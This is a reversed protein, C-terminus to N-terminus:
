PRITFSAHLGFHDSTTGTSTVVSSWNPTAKGSADAFWYDLKMTPAGDCCTYGSGSGVVSWSDVFNPSMGATTDIQDPDANFDGAVLQPAAFNSAWSKLFAMSSYRPAAAVQLHVGFVQLPIGNVNVVLRTAGRGSHWQDAYPMITGSSDLVPLSTFVGVGEDESSTCSTGNWAGLPCHTQFAGRWTQGTRNQLENIYTNFLSLRAEEIVIVQPRPSLAALDDMVTRAHADTSDNVEINWQAVILETGDPPPPSGALITIGALNFGGADIVVKLVQRGATLTVPVSIISYNQWGGTNPVALTATTASGATAHMRGTAWASAVQFQMTYAGSATVNVTYTMWEGDAIWGIDYGGLSSSEIDVGTQRYQGGANGPTTDHYAVGEAGNDFNEPRIPGPVAVPVGSYPNGPPPQGAALVTIGALNFGGADIAVKLVQQGATLTVPVSITTWTQWGGTNPVALTATTASGCTAHIRGTAWASAVQFQLTYAGSATVNVTYTMWEGDTIWGIDYGGLSSSEIDVGTQRYQGGTNGATTDHYAVGEGGNDFNEPQIPGPLAIPSGLYSASSVSSTLRLWTVNGGNSPGDTDFALKMVQSGAQLSVTQSVTTWAQWGGTDPIMLAGTKDAGGFEVHFTGGQGNSAVRAELLYSGASAVNVTYNLWEGAATWGVDYVGDTAPEIDVDTQRYAGGTNGTTTDHYALGEGGNDFDEAQITGPVAAPAGAFPTSIAPAPAVNRAAANAACPLICVCAACLAVLAKQFM